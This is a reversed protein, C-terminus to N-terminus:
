AKRQGGGEGCLASKLARVEPSNSLYAHSGHKEPKKWSQSRGKGRYGIRKWDDIAGAWCNTGRPAGWGHFFPQGM